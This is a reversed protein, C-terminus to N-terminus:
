RCNSKTRSDRALLLPLLLSSSKFREMLAMESSYRKSEEEGPNAWFTGIAREMTLRPTPFGGLQPVGEEDPSGYIRDRAM